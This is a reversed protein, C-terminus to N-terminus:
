LRVENNESISTNASPLHRRTRGDLEVYWVIPLRSSNPSALVAVEACVRARIRAHRTPAVASQETVSMGTGYTFINIARLM